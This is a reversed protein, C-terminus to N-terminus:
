LGHPTTYTMTPRDPTTATDHARLGCCLGLAFTVVGVGAVLAGIEFAGCPMDRARVVCLTFHCFEIV